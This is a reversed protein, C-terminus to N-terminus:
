RMAPLSSRERRGVHFLSSGNKGLQRATAAQDFPVSSLAVMGASEVLWATRRLSNLAFAFYGGGIPGMLNMPFINGYKGSAASVLVVPRPCTFLVSMANTARSTMRVSTEPDNRTRLWIQLMSYGWFRLKPICYNESGRVEFLALNTSDSRIVGSSKLALQGLLPGDASRAHFKLVPRASYRLDLGIGLTSPAACAITHCYTVNIPPGLGHLWVEVEEQPDRLAVTCQQPIEDAGLLARKLAKRALKLM